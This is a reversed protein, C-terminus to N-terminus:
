FVITDLQVRGGAQCAIFSRACWGELVVCIVQPMTILLHLMFSMLQAM